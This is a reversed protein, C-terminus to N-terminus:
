VLIFLLILSDMNKYEFVDTYDYGQFDYTGGGSM